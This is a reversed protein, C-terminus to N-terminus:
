TGRFTDFRLHYHKSARRAGNPKSYTGCFPLAAFKNISCYIKVDKLEVAANDKVHYKIETWKREMFRKRPKGQDITGNQRHEEELNNKFEKALSVDKNETGTHIKIQSDFIVSGPFQVKSMLQYIYIKDVANLGDVVEKGHGPASIGRDIIISYTQSMASMLYLAYTCIYKEACSYTTEWITSLSKTLVKKNKILSILRKSHATTTAADQKSDDSLFFQFAAHRQRSLTSSMIDAQPVASFHELAIGEISM